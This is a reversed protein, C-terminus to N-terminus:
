RWPVKDGRHVEWLLDWEQTESNWEYAAADRGIRDNYNNMYVLANKVQGITNHLKQKPSRWPIITMYPKDKQEPRLSMDVAKSM